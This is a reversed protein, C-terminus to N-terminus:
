HNYLFENSNIQMWVMDLALDRLSLGNKEMYEKYNSKERATARRSLVRLTIADALQEVTL